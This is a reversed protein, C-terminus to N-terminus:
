KSLRCKLNRENLLLEIDNILELKNEAEGNKLISVKNMIESELGELEDNGIPDSFRVKGELKILNNKVSENDEKLILLEIEVLLKKIFETKKQVKKEVNQIENKGALTAVISMASVGLILVSVLLSIWTSITPVFTFILFAILQIIFYTISKRIVPVDYFKDKLNDTNSTFNKLVIFQIVFAIISFVYSIWFSPTKLTPLVFASLSVIIFLIGLIIYLFKNNRM